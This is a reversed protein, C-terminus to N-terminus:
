RQQVPPTLPRKHEGKALGVFFISAFTTGYGIGGSWLGLIVGGEFNFPEGMVFFGIFCGFFMGLALALRGTLEARQMLTHARAQEDM